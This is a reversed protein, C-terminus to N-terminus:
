AFLGGDANCVHEVHLHSGAARLRDLLPGEVKIYKGVDKGHPLRYFVGEQSPAVVIEVYGGSAREVTAPVANCVPCKKPAM